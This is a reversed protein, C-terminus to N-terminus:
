FFRVPVLKGTASEIVVGCCEVQNQVEFFQASEDGLRSKTRILRADGGATGVATL